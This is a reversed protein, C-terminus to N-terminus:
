DARIKVDLADRLGDGFYNLALVTLVIAIGPFISLWPAMSIYDYGERLLSGWSANPAEVGLGMYSLSAETIIAAAASLTIQVILVSMLNPMIHKVMIKFKSLGACIASDIYERRRLTLTMSRTLRAFAPTSALGIALVVNIISGGEMITGFVLGLLITPFACMADIIMSLVRDVAKGTYGAVVGIITGVVAAVLVSLVSVAISIRAGYLVRSLVDRGFIDTGFWHAATPGSLANATDMAAHDYPCIMNGFIALFVIFLFVAGGFVATKRKTFRQIRRRRETMPKKERSNM